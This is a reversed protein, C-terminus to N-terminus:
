EEHSHRLEKMQALLRDRCTAFHRIATANVVNTRPLRITVDASGRNPNFRPQQHLHEQVYVWFAGDAVADYVVLIVPMPEHLWAALDAREIRCAVMQGRAVLKLHDTAKLQVLIQGNEVNGEEDYTLISLDIGYDHVRREVSYGCLLAHREVHNASLDAIVHERTRKKRRSVPKKRSLVAEGALEVM